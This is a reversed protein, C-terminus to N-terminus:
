AAEALVRTAAAMAFTAKGVGKPGALLWAHHLRRGKWAAEFREVAKGQGAIM